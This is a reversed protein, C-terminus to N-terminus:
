EGTVTPPLLCCSSLQASIISPGIWDDDHVDQDCLKIAEGTTLECNQVPNDRDVEADPDCITLM